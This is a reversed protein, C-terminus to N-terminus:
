VAELPVSVDAVEAGNLTVGPAGVWRTKRWPGEFACAPEAMEGATVTAMSSALLLMSVASLKDVTPRAKPFLAPPPVSLPPVGASVTEPPMAVKVEKDM